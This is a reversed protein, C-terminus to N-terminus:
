GPCRLLLAGLPPVVVQTGGDVPGGETRGGLGAPLDLPVFRGTGPLVYEVTRCSLNFACFLREQAGARGFALVPGDEDILEIAGSRLAPHRRRLDLCARWAELVSGARGEQRDAALPRHAEPVPLWPRAAAAPEGDGTWPIPTRSGDRGPFQPWFAIGFPDRLDEKALEAQPLGLEEGQYISVVGPLCCTLLALFRSFRGRDAGPPPWRSVAREVDHNTLSWCTTGATAGAMLAARFAEPGFPAKALGLTYAAHLGGPATYRAIRDIHGAQSSLEGVLVRGPYRDVLARLREIVLRVDGHMMDFLHHQLGFPKVPIARPPDSVPPNPRLQPDRMLFDVADIRFGDIGRDLWFAANGLVAGLAGEERLNLAPQSPLFHHLYYQRRVPDWSWAPGGFVSLWNNPATGDAKPDAWVYWDGRPGGRQTRSSQFWPHATSTHGCVLDLLVKLGRGHAEELLRDFDELTGLRPDVARHDAIDYGFDEFPSPYFPTLWIADVGLGAVHDLRRRVGELDGLGDGNGDAFTLPCIQYLASGSLWSVDETVDHETGRATSPPRVRTSAERRIPLYHTLARGSRRNNLAPV